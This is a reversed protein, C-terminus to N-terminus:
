LKAMNDLLKELITQIELMAERQALIQDSQQIYTDTTLENSSENILRGISAHTSELHFQLGIVKEQFVFAQNVCAESSALLVAGPPLQFTDGHWHFSLFQEPIGVFTKLNKSEPTLFVPFWGIEKFENKYVNGGLVDAILQAGLCIGLIIKKASIAKKIFEKESALWAFEHEEYINMPGGMIILWDFSGIDPLPEENYMLTRSLSHGNRQAWHLINAPDEFPVHQLYHIRM